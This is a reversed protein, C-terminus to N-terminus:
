LCRSGHGAWIVFRLICTGIEFYPHGGKEFVFVLPGPFIDSLTIGKFVIGFNWQLHHCFSKKTM